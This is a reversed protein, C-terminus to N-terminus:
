DKARANIPIKYNFYNSNAKEGVRIDSYTIKNVVSDGQAHYDLEVVKTPMSFQAYSTYDYYFIKRFVKGKSDFYAIYIPHYSEHVLEVKSCFNLLQAPPFWTTIMLKEEFRTDTITFGMDKMGLDSLKNSLFFYLLGKESDFESSQKTYVENTKPYYIKAEGKNNTFFLYDLPPLYRTLMRGQDFQYYIEANIVMAKGKNLSKAEMKMSVKTPNQFSTSVTGIIALFMFFLIGKVPRVIFRNFSYRM